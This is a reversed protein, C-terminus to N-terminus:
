VNSSTSIWSLSSNCTGIFMDGHFLEYWDMMLCTLWSVVSILGCNFGTGVSDKRAVEVGRWNIDYVTFKNCKKRYDLWGRTRHDSWWGGRGDVLRSVYCITRQLCYVSSLLSFGGRQSKDGDSRGEVVNFQQDDTRPKQRSQEGRLSYAGGAFGDASYSQLSVEFLFYYCIFAAYLSQM